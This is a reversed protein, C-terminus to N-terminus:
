VCYCHPIHYKTIPNCWRKITERNVDFFRGAESLSYFLHENIFCKKSFPHIKGRHSNIMNHKSEKTHKYGKLSESIKRKTEYSLPNGFNHNNEGEEAMGIKSKTKDTHKHGKKSDSMKKKSEESHKIGYMPHDKGSVNFKASKGEKMLNWSFECGIHGTLMFLWKHLAQHHNYEVRVLNSHHDVFEKSKHKLLCKPTIHHTNYITKPM